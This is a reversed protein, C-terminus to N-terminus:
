GAKAKVVKGGKREAILKRLLAISTPKAEPANTALFVGEAWAIPTRKENDPKDLQAGKSALFEIVGDLGRNAAGHIAQLGMSNTANVDLGLKHCLKVAELMQDPGETFTQNQVWNIGAAAMLPTTGENAGIKPDAGHELLLKMTAVDGAYAARFFPTQGTVDVWALSGLGTIFRREPPYEKVRANVNAGRGILFKIFELAKGRDVGNERAPGSVDLNRVDVAAWLPTEGYWDVANVNAGAEVLYRAMDLKNNIIATLLPTMQNADATELRAGAEVLMRAEALRGERAAYILPTKAGPVPNRMGRDLPWGGRVIGLGKSGSNESPLRHAPARGAKTQANVDAKAAILERVAETRGERVAIMLATQQFAEDRADVEAGAELLAKVIKPEGQRAATMLVTEGTPALAKADAGAKLLLSVMDADGNDIAIQLPTLDYRSKQNPNAGADLLMKAAETNEYRVAWHLAPTGDSAFASVDAKGGLLQKVRAFDQNMAANALSLTSASAQPAPTSEASDGVTGCAALAACSAALM